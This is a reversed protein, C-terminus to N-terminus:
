FVNFHFFWCFIFRLFNSKIIIKWREIWQLLVNERNKGMKRESSAKKVCIWIIFEALGRAKIVRRVEWMFNSRAEFFSNNYWGSGIMLNSSGRHQSTAFGVPHLALLYSTIQSFDTFTLKRLFCFISKMWSFYATIEKVEM